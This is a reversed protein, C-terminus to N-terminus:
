TGTWTEVVVGVTASQLISIEPAGAHHEILHSSVEEMEKQVISKKRISSQTKTGGGKELRM